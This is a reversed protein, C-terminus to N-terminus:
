ENVAIIPPASLYLVNVDVLLRKSLCGSGSKVPMIV